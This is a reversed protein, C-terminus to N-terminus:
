GLEAEKENEQMETFIDKFRFTIRINKNRGVEIKQILTKVLDANFVRDDLHEELRGTM